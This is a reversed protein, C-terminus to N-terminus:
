LCRSLSVSPRTNLCPLPSCIEAAVTEGGYEMYYKKQSFRACNVSSLNGDPRTSIRSYTYTHVSSASKSCPHTHSIEGKFGGGGRGAAGNWPVGFHKSKHLTYTHTFIYMTQLIRARYV